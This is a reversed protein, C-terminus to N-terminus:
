AEREELIKMIDAVTPRVNRFKNKKWEEILVHLFAEGFTPRLILIYASLLDAVVDHLNDWDLREMIFPIELSEAIAMHDFWESPGDMLGSGTIPLTGLLYWLLNLSRELELASDRWAGNQWFFGEVFAVAAAGTAVIEEKVDDKRLIAGALEVFEEEHLEGDPDM